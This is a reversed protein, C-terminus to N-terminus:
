EAPVTEVSGKKSATEFTLPCHILHKFINDTACGCLDCRVMTENRQNEVCKNEEGGNEIRTPTKGMCMKLVSNKRNM